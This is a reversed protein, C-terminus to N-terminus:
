STGHPRESPSTDELSAASAPRGPGSELTSDAAAKNRALPSLEDSM